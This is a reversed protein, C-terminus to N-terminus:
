VQTRAKRKLGAMILSTAFFLALLSELHQPLWIIFIYLGIIFSEDVGAQLFGLSLFFLAVGGSYVLWTVRKGIQMVVKYWFPVAVLGVLIALFLSKQM